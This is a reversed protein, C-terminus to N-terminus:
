YAQDGQRVSKWPAGHDPWYLCTDALEEKGDFYVASSSFASAPIPKGAYNNCESDTYTLLGPAYDIGNIGWNIGVYNTVPIFPVCVESKVDITTGVLSTCNPDNYSGVTSKTDRTRATLAASLAPAGASLLTLIIATTYM